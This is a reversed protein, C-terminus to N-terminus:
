EVKSINAARRSLVEHLPCTNVPSGGPQELQMVHHAPKGRASELDWGLLAEAARNLYLVDGEADTTIVGDKHSVLIIRHREQQRLLPKQSEKIETNDTVLPFLGKVAGKEAHPILTALPSRPRGRYDGIVREFVGREGALVAELQPQLEAF